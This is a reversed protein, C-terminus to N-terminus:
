PDSSIDILEKELETENLNEILRKVYIEILAQVPVEKVEVDDIRQVLRPRGRTIIWVQKRRNSIPYYYKEGYELRGSELQAYYNEIQQAKSEEFKEDLTCDYIVALNRFIFFGDPRGKQDEFKHLNHIGLLKLLKFVHEEFEKPDETKHLSDFFPPYLDGEEPRIVEEKLYQDERLYWDKLYWGPELSLYEDPVQSLPIEREIKVKFIIKKFIIKSPKKRFDYVSGVWARQPPGAEGDREERKIFLTPAREVLSDKNVKFKIMKKTYYTEDNKLKDWHNRWFTVMVYKIEM